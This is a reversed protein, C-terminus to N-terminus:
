TSFYGRLSSCWLELLNDLTIENLYSYM